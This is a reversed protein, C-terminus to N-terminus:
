PFEKHGFGIQEERPAGNSNRGTAVKSALYKAYSNQLLIYQVRYSHSKLRYYYFVDFIRAVATIISLSIGVNRSKFSLLTILAM